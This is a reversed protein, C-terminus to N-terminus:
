YCSKTSPKSKLKFRGLLGCGPAIEKLVSYIIDPSINLRLLNAVVILAENDIEINAEVMLARYKRLEDQTVASEMSGNFDRSGMILRCLTFKRGVFVIFRSLEQQTTQGSRESLTARRSACAAALRRRASQAGDVLGRSGCGTAFRVRRARSGFVAWKRLFRAPGTRAASGLKLAM